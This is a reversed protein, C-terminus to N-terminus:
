GAGGDTLAKSRGAAMEQPQASLARITRQQLRRRSCDMARGVRKVPTCPQMDDDHELRRERVNCVHAHAQCSLRPASAGALSVNQEDVGVPKELVLPEFRKQRDRANLQNCFGTM